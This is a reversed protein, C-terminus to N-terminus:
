QGWNGRKPWVKGKMGVRWQVVGSNQAVSLASVSREMGCTLLGRGLFHLLVDVPLILGPPALPPPWVWLQISPSFGSILPRRLM